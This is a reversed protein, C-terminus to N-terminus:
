TCIKAERKQLCLNPCWTETPSTPANTLFKSHLIPVHSSLNLTIVTYTQRTCSHYSARPSSLFLNNPAHQQFTSSKAWTATQKPQSCFPTSCRCRKTTSFGGWEYKNGSFNGGKCNRRQHGTWQEDGDSGALFFFHPRSLVKSFLLMCTM